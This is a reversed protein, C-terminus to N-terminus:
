RLSFNRFAKYSPKPEGDAFFVGTQYSARGCQGRYPQDRVLFNIAVSAGQRQFSRLAQSIWRAQRKLPVGTCRDPPNTGWWFETVWVQHRGRTGVRNAKEAKRLVEVVNKVDPYSADDPHIASHKPGGSSIAHHALADLKAKSGCKKPKLSRKLCLLDRLFALPRTRLGGPPDGHPATGGSSVMAGPQVQHVGKYFANLMRRYIDSAVLRKGEYQPTLFGSLNPENWAEYHRVRDGYRAALAQAFRGLADADPKWTGAPAKELSPRNPGEAWNPASSITLLPALDNNKAVNVAADLTGWNYAPDNPNRPSIPRSPATVQWSVPIRAISAGARKSAAFAGSRAQANSSMYLPEAFGTKIPKASAVTASGLVGFAALLTAVGATIKRMRSIKM